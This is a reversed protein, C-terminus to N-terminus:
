EKGDLGEGETYTITVPVCAKQKGSGYELAEERTKNVPGVWVEGDVIYVNVWRTVTVPEPPVNELDLYHPFQSEAAAGTGNMRWVDPIPSDRIYGVKVWPERGVIPLIEVPDKSGKTRVPKSWDINSM